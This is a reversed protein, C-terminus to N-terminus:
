CGGSNATYWGSPCTGCGLRWCTSDCHVTLRQMYSLQGGRYLLGFTLMTELCQVSTPVCISGSGAGASTLTTFKTFLLSLEVTVM